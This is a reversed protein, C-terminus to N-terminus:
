PASHLPSVAEACCRGEGRLNPRDDPRAGVGADDAHRPGVVVLHVQDPAALVGHRSRQVVALCPQLGRDHIDRSLVVLQRRRHSLDGVLVHLEVRHVPLLRIEDGVDAVLQPSRQGADEAIGLKQQVPRIALELLILAAVDLLDLRAALHQQPQDVVDKVFGLDLGALHRQLQTTDVELHHDGRDQGVELRQRVVLAQEQVCVDKVPNIRKPVLSAQPLNQGVQDAVRDLEGVRTADVDLAQWPRAEPAHAHRVGADPHWVVAPLHDELAELLEVGAGGPSETARAETQGDGLPQHGHLPALHADVGRQALAAGEPECHGRKARM